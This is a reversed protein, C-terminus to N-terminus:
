SIPIAGIPEPTQRKAHALETKLRWLVGKIGHLGVEARTVSPGYRM